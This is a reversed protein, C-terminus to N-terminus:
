PHSASVVKKGTQKKLRTNGEPLMRRQDQVKNLLHQPSRSHAHEWSLRVELHQPKGKLIVVGM